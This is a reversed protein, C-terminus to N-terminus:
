TQTHVDFCLAGLTHMYTHSHPHTHAHKHTRTMHTHTHIPTRAHSHVHAYTGICVCTHTHAHTRVDYSAIADATGGQLLHANAMCDYVDCTSYGHSVACQLDIVADQVCVYVCVHVHM